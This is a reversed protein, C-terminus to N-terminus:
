ALQVPPARSNYAAQPASAFRVTQIRCSLVFLLFLSTVILTVDPPPVDLAQHALVHCVPCENQLADSEHLHTSEIAQIAFFSIFLWGLIWQSLTRSLKM